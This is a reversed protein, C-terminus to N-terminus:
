WRPVPRSRWQWPRSVLASCVIRTRSASAGGSSVWGHGGEALPHGVDLLAGFGGEVPGQGCGVDGRGAEVFGHAIRHQAAALPHTREEYMGAALQAAGLRFAEIADGAGELHDVGVGEDMVVHGAHVVVHQAAALGGHVDLEVLGGRQQDTVGKLGLGELMDGVGRDGVVGPALDGHDALQGLGRAGAAHGAALGDVEGGDAPLEAQGLELEHVDVFRARQDPRGDVKAYM